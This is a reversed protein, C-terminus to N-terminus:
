VAQGLDEAEQRSLMPDYEIPYLTAHVRKHNYFVEIWTAVGDIVQNRTIFAHRYFYEAKLTTWFSKAMANDWCVGIKGMPM